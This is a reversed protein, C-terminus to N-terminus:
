EDLESLCFYGGSLGNRFYIPCSGCICMKKSDMPCKSVTRGCFLSEGKEKNCDTYLSCNKCNCKNFNDETNEPKM